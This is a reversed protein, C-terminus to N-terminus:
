ATLDTPLKIHDMMEAFSLRMYHRNTTEISSHGLFKAIIALSNGNAFLRHAVFHRAAHPHCHPGSVGAQDCVRYWWERLQRTGIPVRYRVASRQQTAYLLSRIVATARFCVHARIDVDGM